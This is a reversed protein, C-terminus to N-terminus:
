FHYNRTSLCRHSRTPPLILTGDQNLNGGHIKDLRAPGLLVQRTPIKDMLPHSDKHRGGLAGPILLIDVLNVTNIIKIPRSRHNSIIRIRLMSIKGRPNSTAMRSSPGMRLKIPLSRRTHLNIVQKLKLGLTTDKFRNLNFWVDRLNVQASELHVQNALLIDRSPAPNDKHWWPNGDLFPHDLQNSLQNVDPNVLKDPNVIPTPEPNIQSYLRSARKAGVMVPNTLPNPKSGERIYPNPPSAQSFLLNGGKGWPIGKSSPQNIQLITSQALKDMPTGKNSVLSTQNPMHNSRSGLLNIRIMIRRVELVWLNNRTLNVKRTGLHDQTLRAMCHNGRPTRDM